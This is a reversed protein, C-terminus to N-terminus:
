RAAARREAPALLTDIMREARAQRWIRLSAQRLSEGQAVFIVIEPQPADFVTSKSFRRDIDRRADAHLGGGEDKWFYLNFDDPEFALAGIGIQRKKDWWGAFPRYYSPVGPEAAEADFDPLLYHFYGPCEWPRPDDSRLSLLRASFWPRGRVWTISYECTFARPANLAAGPRDHRGIVGKTDQGPHSLKACIELAAGFDREICSELRPRVWQDQPTRQWVLPALQGVRQGGMSLAAAAEEGERAPAVCLLHGEASAAPRAPEEVAAGLFVTAASHAALEPLTINLTEGQADHACALWQGNPAWARVDARGGRMAVRVLAMGLDDESPNAVVLARREDANGGAWPLGPVYWMAQAQNDSRDGEAIAGDPDIVCQVFHGGPSGPLDLSLRLQAGAAVRARADRREGDIWLRVTTQADATGENRISLRPPSGSLVPRLEAVQGAHFRYVMANVRRATETLDPYPEDRENVLGYNSDEPFTSSIGLAPEDVWMFYDSGVIYPTRFLLEQFIRWAAARQQQTDFRQGAGHQCPLGSDLAPFSWETIMLPRRAAEHWRRLDDEFGITRRHELDAQRYCNVSVIDCYRGALDWIPPADGAFRCGLNLHNPDVERLAEACASFYRQAIIRVFALKDARAADSTEGMPKRRGLLADFSPANAGWARNFAAIDARYRQRLFAIFAIKATHSPPKKFAEDALGWPRYSKGFWELENDLFYGILWPDDKSPACQLRAQKRCHEQWKPSFVNPFGTWHVQPCIDDSAAFSQGFSIFDIHALGQHRLSPSHNAAVTNFGWSRLRAVTSEAWAQESGFKEVVNRHYPAYGLAECWHVNYNAHDTGIIYFARGHPDFLWWRGAREAVRFFGAAPGRLASWSKVKVPPPAPTQPPSMTSMVGLRFDDFRSDFGGSDLGAYGARVSRPNDLRYAIRSVVEGGLECVTGEILEQTLRLRLRYPHDYRWDFGTGSREIATLKTEPASESLWGGEYAEVVEIFHRAGDADPSEVLALHWFNARDRSVIVGAIKWQDVTKGSIIVTAEAVQENAYPAASYMAFSRGPSICHFAGARMDWAVSDTLWSPEGTSSDPYSAFDDHFTQAVAGASLAACVMLLCAIERWM